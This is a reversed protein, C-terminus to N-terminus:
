PTQQSRSPSGRARPSVANVIARRAVEIAAAITGTIAAVLIVQPTAVDLELAV